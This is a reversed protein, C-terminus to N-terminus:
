ILDQIKEFMSKWINGNVTIGLIKFFHDYGVLDTIKLPKKFKAEKELEKQTFRLNLIKCKILYNPYKLLLLEEIEELKDKTKITKETDLNINSKIEFYYVTNKKRFVLDLQKKCKFNLYSYDSNNKIIEKIYKNIVEEFINGLKIMISQSSALKPLLELLSGNSKKHKNKKKDIITKLVRNEFNKFTNKVLSVKKM